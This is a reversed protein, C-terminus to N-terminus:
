HLCNAVREKKWSTLIEEAMRDMLGSRTRVVGLHMAKRYDDGRRHHFTSILLQGTEADVMEVQLSLSPIVGDPGYEQIGSEIIKGRIVADVHLERSFDRYLATDATMFDTALLRKRVLFRQVEGESEMTFLASSTLANLFIRSALLSVGPDSSENAFPLIAVRCVPREPNRTAYLTDPGGLGACACCLLPLLLPTLWKLAHLIRQM